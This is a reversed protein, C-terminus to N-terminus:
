TSFLTAVVFPAARDWAADIEAFLALHHGGGRSFNQLTNTKGGACWQRAPRGWGRRGVRSTFLQGRIRAGRAGQSELKFGGSM